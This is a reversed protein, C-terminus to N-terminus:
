SILYKILGTPIRYRTTIGNVNDWKRHTKGKEKCDCKCDCLSTKNTWIMTPKKYDFGFKCYDVRIFHRDTIYNKLKGVPNEMFWYTPKLYDVIELGKMVPPLGYKDIDEKMMERTLIAMDHFKTRRGVWCNRAQSFFRCPPSLWIIDFEGVEWRKYDLDMIDCCIDPNFKKDIDVSIVEWDDPCAKKFSKTGSFLELCKM